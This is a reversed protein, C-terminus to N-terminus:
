DANGGFEAVHQRLLEKALSIVMQLTTEQTSTLQQQKLPKGFSISPSLFIKGPHMLQSIVQGFEALRQQDIHKRRIRPFWHGAWHRSVVGSIVVPLVTLEPVYKFFMDFVDMWGDMAKLVGHYVDPDPDRHGSAFYVLTGGQQLHQIANRLVVMRARSDQRPAFLVHEELNPLLHFFPIETSIWKIDKRSLNAFITLGDYAGPHNTIVLLPGSPPINEVGRTNVHDCFNKLCNESAKPLGDNKTTEDFPAGIHAFRTTIKNFLAWALRHTFRTKPLGVAGVIEDILSDSLMSITQPDDM